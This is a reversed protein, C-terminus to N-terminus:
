LQPCESATLARDDTFILESYISESRHVATALQPLAHRGVLQRTVTVICLRMRSRLWGVTAGYTEVDHNAVGAPDMGPIVRHLPRRTSATTHAKHTAVPQSAWPM